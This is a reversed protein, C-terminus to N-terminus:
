FEDFKTKPLVFFIIKLALIIAMSSLAIRFLFAFYSPIGSSITALIKKPSTAKQAIGSDADVMEIEISHTLRREYFENYTINWYKNLIQKAANTPTFITSFSVLYKEGTNKPPLILKGYDALDISYGYDTANTTNINVGDVNWQYPCDSANDFIKPAITGSLNPILEISNGTLAQFNTESRDEHSKGYFDIYNGLLLGRCVYKDSADKEKPIIKAEPSSVRFVRTLDIREGTKKNLASLSVNYNDGPEKLIPFYTRETSKGDGPSFCLSFSEDPCAQTKGDITWLFDTYTPDGEPGNEIGMGIIEDKAVECVASPSTLTVKTAPDTISFLCREQANLGARDTKEAPFNINEANVKATYVRIREETSSLPVTVDAHGEREGNGDSLTEKVTVKVKLYKPLTNAPPFDTPKFNFKFKLTDVGLGSTQTASDLKEKPLAQGWDDPNSEDSAYVNWTYNLYSASNPNAVTASFSAEDGDKNDSPDNIPNDPLYKLTIDLKQNAGGGESPTLFNVYLCKNLNPDTLDTSAPQNIADVRTCTYSHGDESLIGGSEITSQPCTSNYTTTDSDAITAGTDPDIHTIITEVTRKARINVNNEVQEPQGTYPDIAIEQVTTTITTTTYGAQVIPVPNSGSTFGNTDSYIRTTPGTTIPFDNSDNDLNLPADSSDYNCTNKSFAWMTKYSSDAAQTPQISSGEIVVGVKDGATYSFSFVEAGLGAINAEDMQGTGATDNDAPNTHWFKEESASFNGDGTVDNDVHGQDDYYHANPFLHVCAIETDNGSSINRLYCHENNKNRQDDGGFVASYGDNDGNKSYDANQWDFDNNALVRAAKIKYDEIDVEDDDNLDCKEFDGEAFKNKYNDGDLVKDYCRKNKLYWTFYLNETSNMFYTPLATVSVKEGPVPDTPDFTLSLTPPNIKQRAVNATKVTNQLESKNVGLEGLVTDLLSVPNGLAVGLLDAHASATFSFINIIILIVVIIKKFKIKM